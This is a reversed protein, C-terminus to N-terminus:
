MTPYVISGLQVMELCKLPKYKENIAIQCEVMLDANKRLAKEGFAKLFYWM